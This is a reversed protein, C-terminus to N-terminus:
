AENLHTYSVSEVALPHVIDTIGLTRIAVDRIHSRSEPIIIGISDGPRCSQREGTIHEVMLKAVPLRDDIRIWGDSFPDVMDRDRICM